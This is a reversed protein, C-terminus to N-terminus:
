VEYISLREVKPVQQADRRIRYFYEACETRLLEQVFEEDHTIILLQFSGEAKRARVISSLARALGLINEKDLNTTPEDLSLLGCNISFAEALALRVVISALMKQGASVRGRMSIDVGDKEMVLTYSRDQESVIKIAHIDGGKYTMEWIEKIISNVEALKESHYRVIGAEVEKAYKELDALSDKLVKTTIFATLEDEEATAYELLEHADEARQHDLNAQEGAHESLSKQYRLVASDAARCEEQADQLAELTVSCQGIKRTLALARLSDKLLQRRQEAHELDALQQALQERRGLCAQQQRLLEAQERRAHATFETAELGSLRGAMDALSQQAALLALQAPRSPYLQKLCTKAHLLASEEQKAASLEQAKSAIAADLEAQERALRVTEDSLAAAGSQGSARKAQLQELQEIRARARRQQEEHARCRENEQEEEKEIAQLRALSDQYQQSVAQYEVGAVAIAAARKKLAVLEAYKQQAEQVRLLKHQLFQRQADWEDIPYRQAPAEAVKATLSIASIESLLVALQNQRQQDRQKTEAAALAAQVAAKRARAHEVITALKQLHGKAAGTDLQAKCFPCEGQARALFEAYIAESATVGGLKERLERDAGGAEVQAEIKRGEKIKQLAEQRTLVGAPTAVGGSIQELLQEARAVKYRQLQGQAVILAEQHLQQEAQAQQALRGAAIQRQLSDCEAQTAQALAALESENVAAAGALGLLSLLRGLEKDKRQGEKELFEKEKRQEAAGLAQGVQQQLREIERLVEQKNRAKKTYPTSVLATQEQLEEMFSEESEDLRRALLAELQEKKKAAQRRKSRAIGLEEALKVQARGAAFIRDEVLSESRQLGASFGQLAAEMQALGAPSEPDSEAAFSPVAPLEGLWGAAEALAERVPRMRDLQAQVDQVAAQSLAALDARLKKAEKRAYEAALEQQQCGQLKAALARGESEAAALECQLSAASAAAVTERLWQSLEAATGPVLPKTSLGHLESEAKEKERLLLLKQEYEAHKEQQRQQEAALGAAARASEQKLEQVREASRALRQELRHKAQTKQQLGEHRALQIKLEATKEKKLLKLADLAKIFRSSSFIGEMKKKVVAPDGLPWTSDEQHCFIVNELVAATTGLLLPIESDLGALKNGVLRRESGAIEWLASELTKTEQKTRGLSHAMGRVVLHEKGGCSTFKMMVQARTEAEQALRPDHVFAGSKSNPPLAGTTAYKLAEVITTKGTGNPGVILTLPAYIELTAPANEPFARIGRVKLKQIRSM